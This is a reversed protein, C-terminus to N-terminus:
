FYKPGMSIDACCFIKEQFDTVGRIHGYLGVM